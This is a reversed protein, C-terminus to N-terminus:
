PCGEPGSQIEENPDGLHLPVWGHQRLPWQLKGRAEAPQESGGERLDGPRHHLGLEGCKLCGLPTTGAAWVDSAEEFVQLM